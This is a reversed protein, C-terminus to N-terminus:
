GKTLRDLKEQIAIKAFEEMTLSELAAIAKWKKHLLKPVDRITFYRIYESNDVENDALPM